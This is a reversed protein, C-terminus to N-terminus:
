GGCAQRGPPLLAPIWGAPSAVSRWRDHSRLHPHSWLGAQPPARCPPLRAAQASADQDDLHTRIKEIVVADEICAINGLGDGCAPGRAGSRPRPLCRAGGPDVAANPPYIKCPVLQERRTLADAASAFVGLSNATESRRSMSPAEEQRLGEPYTM